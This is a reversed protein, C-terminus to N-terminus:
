PHVHEAHGRQDREADRNHGAERQREAARIPPMVVRQAVEEVARVQPADLQEHRQQHDVQPPLEPHRGPATAARHGPDGSHDGEEGRDHLAEGAIHGLLIEVRLPDGGVALVREVRHANAREEVHHVEALHQHPVDTSIGM